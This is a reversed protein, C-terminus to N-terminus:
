GDKFEKFYRKAEYFDKPTNVNILINDKKNNLFYIKSKRKLCDEFFKLTKFKKSYCMKYWDNIDKKVIIYIGGYRWHVKQSEKIKNLFKNKLIFQKKDQKRPKEKTVM